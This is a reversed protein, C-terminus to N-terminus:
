GRNWSEPTQAFDQRSRYLLNSWRRLWAAKVCNQPILHATQAHASLACSSHRRNLGDGGSKQLSCWWAHRKKRGRFAKPLRKQKLAAGNRDAATTQSDWGPALFVESHGHGTTGWALTLGHGELDMNRVFTNTRVRAGAEVGTGAAQELPFGRGGLVGVM